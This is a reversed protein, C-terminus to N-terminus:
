PNPTHVFKPLEAKVKGVMEDINILGIGSRDQRSAADVLVKEELFGLQCARLLAIFTSDNRGCVDSWLIYINTGYIGISDLQLIPGVGGMLCDPDITPCNKYVNMLATLAGPNGESMKTFITLFDDELKLKNKM